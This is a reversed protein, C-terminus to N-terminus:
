LIGAMDTFVLPSNESAARQKILDSNTAVSLDSLNIYFNDGICVRRLLDAGRSVDGALVLINNGERMVGLQQECVGRYYLYELAASVKLLVPETLHEGSIVYFKGCLKDYEAVRTQFNKYFMTSLGRRDQSKVYFPPRNVDAKCDYMARAIAADSIRM